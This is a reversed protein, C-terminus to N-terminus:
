VLAVASSEQRAVLRMGHRAELKLAEELAAEEVGLAAGLTRITGVESSVTNVLGIAALARTLAADEDLLSFVRMKQMREFAERWREETANLTSLPGYIADIARKALCKAVDLAFSPASGIAVGERLARADESGHRNLEASGPVREPPAVGPEGAWNCVGPSSGVSQGEHSIGMMVSKQNEPQELIKVM